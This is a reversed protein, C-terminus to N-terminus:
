RWSAIWLWKGRFRWSTMVCCSHSRLDAKSVLNNADDDGGGDRDDDDDDYDDDDDDDDDDDRVCGGSFIQFCWRDM